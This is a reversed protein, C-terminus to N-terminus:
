GVGAGGGEGEGAEGDGAVAVSAAVDHVPLVGAQVRIAAGHQLAEVGQRGRGELTGLLELREAQALVADRGADDLGVLGRHAHVGLVIEAGDLGDEDAAAGSGEGSRTMRGGTVFGQAMRTRMMTACVMALTPGSPMGAM